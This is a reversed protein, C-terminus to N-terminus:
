TAEAPPAPPRCGGANAILAERRSSGSRGGDAGERVGSLAGLQPPRLPRLPLCLVYASSPDSGSFAVSGGCVFHESGMADVTPSCHDKVSALECDPDTVARSEVFRWDCGDLKALKGDANSGSNVSVGDRRRSDRYELHASRFQDLMNCVSDVAGHRLVGLLHEAALSAKRSTPTSESILESM